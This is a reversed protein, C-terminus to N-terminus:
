NKLEEHQTSVYLGNMNEVALFLVTCHEPIANSVTDKTLQAAKKYWKREQWKGKDCTYVIYGKNVPIESSFYAKAIGNSITMESIAPLAPTEQFLSNTFASIECPEWGAEHGHAMEHKVCLTVPGKCLSYSKKLSDPPYAFDNTGTVFLMPMETNKLYSSPDCYDHWWKLEEPNMESFIKMWDDASNDQLFGCGYVPIACAFRSDVGSTICTLYGGWSIGTVGIKGNNVKPVARIINHSRIIAAVAHYTWINDWGLNTDFKAPHDQDPGAQDLRKGDPGCGAFDMAIAAYGKDNWLKVWEKFAQGGGGHVLVMAPIKESSTDPIGLYAFVQTQKRKYPENKFLIGTLNGEESIVEHETNEAFLKKIDWNKTKM